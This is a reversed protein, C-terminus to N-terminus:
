SALARRGQRPPVLLDEMKPTHAYRCATKRDLHPLEAIRGIAVGKDYLEHVAAFRERTM